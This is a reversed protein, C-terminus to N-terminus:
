GAPFRKYDWVRPCRVGAISFAPAILTDFGKFGNELISAFGNGLCWKVARSKSFKGCTVNAIEYRSGSLDGSLDMCRIAKDMGGSDRFEQIRRSLDGRLVHNSSLVYKTAYVPGVGRVGPIGDSGDGMLARWELFRDRPFGLIDDVFDELTVIQDGRLLHVHSDLVQLLDYDNSVVLMNDAVVLRSAHYVLDDAEIGRRHLQCVGFAPLFWRLEELQDVFQLFTPDDGHDRHAKYSPVLKTRFNPTGGDWCIVVSSAKYKIIWSQLVSIVGFLVGVSRGLYSLESHVHRM